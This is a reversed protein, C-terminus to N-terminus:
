VRLVPKQSVVCGQVMDATSGADALCNFGCDIGLLEVYRYIYIVVRVVTTTKILSVVHDICM